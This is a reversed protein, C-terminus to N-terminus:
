ECTIHVGYEKLVDKEHPHVLGVHHMDAGWLVDLAQKVNGGGVYFLLLVDRASMKLGSDVLTKLVHEVNFELNLAKLVCQACPTMDVSDSAEVLRGDATKIAAGKVARARAVVERSEPELDASKMVESARQVVKLPLRGRKWKEYFEFYRRVIELRAAQECVAMDTIADKIHNIGMETPSDCERMPHDRPLLREILKKLIPFAEVDRNYNVSEVGYKQKYFPDIRNYDGLDATSSEYAINIPSSLPLNWVPFTEIKAYGSRKERLVDQYLMTLATAMKGSGPGPAVVVVVDANTEIYPKRGFGHQSAIKKLNHPYHSIYPRIYVRAGKSEAREKFVKVAKEGRYANVVFVDCGFGEAKLWKRMDFAFEEYSLGISSEKGAEIDAASLVIVFELTYGKSMVNKLVSIKANFEYGPLVRAAHHDEFLKGGVELYLKKFKKVREVVGETEKQVYLANDFGKEGFFSFWPRQKEFPSLM